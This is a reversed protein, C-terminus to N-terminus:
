RYTRSGSVAVIWCTADSLANLKGCRMNAIQPPVGILVPGGVIALTRTRMRLATCFSTSAKHSQHEHHRDKFTVDM